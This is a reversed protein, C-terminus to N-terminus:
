GGSLYVQFFRRKFKQINLADNVNLRCLISDKNLRSNSIPWSISCSLKFTSFSQFIWKVKGAAERHFQCGYDHRSVASTFTICNTFLYPWYLKVSTSIISERWGGDFSTLQLYLPTSPVNRKVKINVLRWTRKSSRNEVFKLTNNLTAYFFRKNICCHTWLVLKQVSYFVFM